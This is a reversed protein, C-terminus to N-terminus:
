GKRDLPYVGEVGEPRYGTDAAMPPSVPQGTEM